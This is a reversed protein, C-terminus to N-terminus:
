ARTRNASSGITDCHIISASSASTPAVSRVSSRMRANPRVSGVKPTPGPAGWVSHARVLQVRSPDPQSGIGGVTDGVWFRSPHDVEALLGGEVDAGSEVPGQQFGYHGVEFRFAGPIMGVMASRSFTWRQRQGVTM